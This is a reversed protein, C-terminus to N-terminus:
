RGPVGSDSWGGRLASGQSPIGAFGRRARVARDCSAADVTQFIRREAPILGVRSRVPGDHDSNMREWDFVMRAVSKAQTSV